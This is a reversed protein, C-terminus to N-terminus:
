AKGCCKKYKKESGCPCKANRQIKNIKNETKYKEVIIKRLGESLVHKSNNILNANYEVFKFELNELKKSEKYYLHIELISSISSYHM